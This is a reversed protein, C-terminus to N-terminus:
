INNLEHELLEISEDVNHHTENDVLIDTIPLDVDNELEMGQKIFWEEIEIRVQEARKAFRSHLHVKEVIHKPLKRNSM